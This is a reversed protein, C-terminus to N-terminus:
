FLILAFSIFGLALVTESNKSPNSSYCHSVLLKPLLAILSPKNERSCSPNLSPSQLIVLTITTKIEEGM